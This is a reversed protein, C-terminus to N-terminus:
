PKCIKCYPHPTVHKEHEKKALYLLVNKRREPTMMDTPHKSM